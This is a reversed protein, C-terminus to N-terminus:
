KILQLPLNTSIGFVEINEENVDSLLDCSPLLLILSPMLSPLLLILSSSTAGTNSSSVTNSIIEPKSTV